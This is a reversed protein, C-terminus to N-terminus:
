LVIIRGVGDNAAVIPQRETRQPGRMLQPQPYRLLEADDAAVVRRQRLQGLRGDRAHINVREREAHLRRLDQDLLDFVRLGAQPLDQQRRLEDLTGRRHPFCSFFRLRDM